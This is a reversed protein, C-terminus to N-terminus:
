RHSRLDHERYTKGSNYSCLTAKCHELKLVRQCVSNKKKSTLSDLCLENRMASGPLKEIAEASLNGM